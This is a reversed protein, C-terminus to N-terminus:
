LQKVKPYNAVFFAAFAIEELVILNVTNLSKSLLKSMRNNLDRPLIYFEM